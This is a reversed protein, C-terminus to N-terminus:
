ARRRRLMILGGTALLALSAPEPISETVTASIGVADDGDTGGSNVIFDIDEGQVVPVNSLSFPEAPQYPSSGNYNANFITLGNSQIYMSVVSQQLDTFQGTIDILGSSPAAWRLVTDEPTASNIGGPAIQLVSSPWLLNPSGGANITGGSSNFGIFPGNISSNNALDWLDYTPSSTNANHDPLLTFSGGPTNETGYQWINATTNTTANWDALADYTQAMAMIPFFVVSLFAIIKKRM